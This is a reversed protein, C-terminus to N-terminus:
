RVKCQKPKNIPGVYKDVTINGIGCDNGFINLDDQDYYVNTFEAVAISGKATANTRQGLNYRQTLVEPTVRLAGFLGAKSCKGCDMPWSSDTAPAASKETESQDDQLNRKPTPFHRLGSIMKVHQGIEKPLSYSETARHISPLDLQSHEFESIKTALIESARHSSIQVHILDGANGVEVTTDKGSFYEVVKKTAFADPAVIRKIEKQTLHNGYDVHTPDSVAWFREELTALAAASRKMVITLDITADVTSKEKWLNCMSKTSKTECPQFNNDNEFVTREATAAAVLVTAFAVKITTM